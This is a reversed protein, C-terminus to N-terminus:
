RKRTPDPPRKKTEPEPKPFFNSDRESTPNALPTRFQESSKRSPPAQEPHPFPDYPKRTM